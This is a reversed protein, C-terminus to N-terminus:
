AELTKLASAKAFLENNLIGELERQFEIEKKNRRGTPSFFDYLAGFFQQRDKVHKAVNDIAALDEQLRIQDAKSLDRKKLNEVIQNRVRRMRAEPSDYNVPDSDASILIIAFMPGIGGIVASALLLLKLAEMGIFVGTNRFAKHNANRYVKDFATVLYRGAQHRTAYEDAMYEWSTIDYINNGLESRTEEILQSIIVCNVVEANSSKALEDVGKEKLRLAKQASIIVASRKEASDANALGRSVAALVQNTSVTRTIFEYYTLLHGVEHLIIAAIEEDQYQTTLFFQVPIHITSLIESFVGSARGTKLDVTGRVIGDAKQMARFVDTDDIFGRMWEALFPHNRDVHPIDVSPGEMDFDLRVMLGTHHQITKQLNEILDSAQLAKQSKEKRLEGIAFSLEKFFVGSQFQIAEQAPRSMLKNNM